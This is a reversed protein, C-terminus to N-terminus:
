PTNDLPITIQWANYAPTYNETTIKTAEVIFGKAKIYDILRMSVMKQRITFSNEGQEIAENLREM